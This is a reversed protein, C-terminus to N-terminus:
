KKPQVSHWMKTVVDAGKLIWEWLTSAMAGLDGNFGRWIAVAIVVVVAWKFLKAIGLTRLM